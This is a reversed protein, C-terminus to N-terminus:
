KKNDNSEEYDTVTKSRLMEVTKGMAFGIGMVLLLFFWKMLEYAECFESTISLLTKM